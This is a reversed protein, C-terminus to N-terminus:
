GAEAQTGGFSDIDFPQDDDLGIWRKIGAEYKKYITKRNSRAPNIIVMVPEKILEGHKNRYVDIIPMWKTLTVLSEAAVESEPIGWSAAIARITLGLMSYHNVENDYQPRGQQLLLTEDRWLEEGAGRRQDVQHSPASLQACLIGPLIQHAMEDDRVVFRLLVHDGHDMAALEDYTRWGETSNAVPLQRPQFGLSYLLACIEIKEGEALKGDAVVLEYQRALWPQLEAYSCVPLAYDRSVVDNKGLWIGPFRSLESQRLGGVTVAGYGSYSNNSPKRKVLTARAILEQGDTRYIPSVFRSIYTLREFNWGTKTGPGFGSLRNLLTLPEIDRWDNANLIRVPQESEFKSVLDVPLAPAIRRCAYALPDAVEIDGLEAVRQYIRKMLNNERSALRILTGSELREEGEAPTKLIPNTALGDKIELVLTTAGRTVPKTIIQIFDAIMFVSFFGIGFNGVPQFGSWLLGPHEGRLLNSKWYSNGFDLLGYLLASRSMGIGNDEIELWEQGSKTYLRVRVQGQHDNAYFKKAQLADTANQILERLPVDARNGYLQRGGFKDIINRIDSIKFQTDAPEWDETKVYTAFRAPTEVGRVGRATFRDTGLDALLNDVAQLEQDISRITQYALWWAEHDAYKFTSHSEFTIRDGSCAARSLKHQFTWHQKSLGAPQLIAFALTPARRDDIHIYDALRLLCSLKINNVSWEAPFSTPAPSIVQRDFFTRIEDVSWWHSESILGIKDGLKIRLDSQEILYIVQQGFNWSRHPLQRAKFAHLDRLRTSLAALELEPPVQQYDASEPDRQLHARLRDFLIDQYEKSRKLEPLEEDWLALAMGLDHFLVACGFVYAEVPNLSLTEGGITEATEWLADLHSTDHLTLGPQSERVFGAIFDAKKRIDKFSARLIEVAEPQQLAYPSQEGLTKEWITSNFITSSM